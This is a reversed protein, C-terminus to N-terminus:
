FIQVIDKEEQWCSMANTHLESESGFLLEIESGGDGLASTLDETTEVRDDM